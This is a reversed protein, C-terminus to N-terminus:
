RVAKLLDDASTGGLVKGDVLITPTSSVGAGDAQKTAATVWAAGAGADIPGKVESEKAGAEVAYRVLDDDSPYPGKEDPQHAYLLDHFRLAVRPGAKQLVISFAGAARIPYDTGLGHSLLDFPRYQVRVTGAAALKALEAASGRELQGCYPCLFDEYVIVQHRADRPGRAVGYESTGLAAVHQELRHDDRARKWAAYGVAGGVIVLMLVAVGAMALLRRLRERRAQETEAVPQSSTPM